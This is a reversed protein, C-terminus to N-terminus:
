SDDRIYRGPSLRHDNDFSSKINKLLKSITPDKTELHYMKDAPLRYPFVGIEKLREVLEDYCASARQENEESRNFLLPVTIAMCTDGLSSSTKLALMEHEDCVKEILSYAEVLEAGRFPVLPAFWILGCNLKAPNANGAIPETSSITRLPMQLAASIPKGNLMELMSRVGDVLRSFRNVGFIQAVSNLCSLVVVTNKSFFRVTCRNERCIKKIEKKVAACVASSAYIGGAVGSWPVDFKEALRNQVEKDMLDVLKTKVDAFSSLMQPTDMVKIPTLLGAYDQQLPRLSDVLDVLASEDPVRILYGEICETRRKLRITIQTVVGLNAQCFLGDTYPGVGWKHVADLNALGLSSLLPQYVSGDALVASLSQVASFHDSHPTLGYGRELFNGLVSTIPGAGHVPCIHKDGNSYLYEHLQQFTVGPEITIIGLQQDYGSIASLASLNLIWTNDSVPFSAGYGWNNGMSIPYIAEKFQCSLRMVTQIQEISSVEIVGSVAKKYGSTDSAVLNTTALDVFFPIASKELASIFETSTTM